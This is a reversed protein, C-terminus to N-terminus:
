IICLRVKRSCAVSRSDQLHNVRLTRVLFLPVVADMLPNIIRGTTTADQALRCPLRLLWLLRNWLLFEMEVGFM